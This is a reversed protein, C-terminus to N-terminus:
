VLETYISKETLSGLVLKAIVVVLNRSEMKSHRVSALDLESSTLCLARFVRTEIVLTLGCFLFKSACVSSARGVRRLKSSDEEGTRFVRVSEMRKLRENFGFRLCDNVSVSVM